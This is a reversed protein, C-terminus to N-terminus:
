MLLRVLCTAMQMVDDLGERSGRLEEATYKACVFTLLFPRLDAHSSGSSASSSSSGSADRGERCLQM